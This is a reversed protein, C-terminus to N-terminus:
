TAMRSIFYKSYRQTSITGLISTHSYCDLSYKIYLDGPRNKKPSILNLTLVATLPDSFTQPNLVSWAEWETGHLFKMSCDGLTLIVLKKLWCRSTEKVKHYWLKGQCRSHACKWTCTCTHTGVLVGEPLPCIHWGDKTNPILRPSQHKTM